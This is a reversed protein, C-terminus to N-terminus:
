MQRQQQPKQYSQEKPEISKMDATEVANRMNKFRDAKSESM